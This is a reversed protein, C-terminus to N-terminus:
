PNLKKKNLINTMVDGILNYFTSQNEDWKYGYEERRQNRDIAIGLLKMEEKFSDFLNDLKDISLDPQQKSNFYGNTQNFSILLQNSKDFNEQAFAFFPFLFLVIYRM